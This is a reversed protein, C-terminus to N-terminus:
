ATRAPASVGSNRQLGLMPRGVLMATMQAAPVPRSFYYGQGFRCGLRLLQRHQEATEIGEVVARLGVSDILRLIAEAFRYEQPDTAINAILTRDVKVTDVPLRRLYSISSYGTGFDDIQVGVGLARMEALTELGDADGTMLGTETIEVALHRPPVNSAELLRRIDQTLGRRCMDAPSLNVHLAFSAATPPLRQWAGLQTIAEGVVWEGLELILGSQEAASIFDSPPIM